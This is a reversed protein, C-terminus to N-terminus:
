STERGSAEWAMALNSADCITVAARDRHHTADRTGTTKPRARRERDRHRPRHPQRQAIQRETIKKSETSPDDGTQGPLGPPPRARSRRSRRSRPQAGGQHAPGPRGGHRPRCRLKHASEDPGPRHVRQDATRCPQRDGTGVSRNRDSRLHPQGDGAGNEGGDRLGLRGFSALRIFDAPRSAQGPGRGDTPLGRSRRARLYRVALSCGCSLARAVWLVPADGARGSGAEVMADRHDAVM